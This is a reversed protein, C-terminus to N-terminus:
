REVEIPSNAVEVSIEATDDGLGNSATVRIDDSELVRALANLQALTVGNAFCDYPLVDYEGFSYAYQCPEGMAQELKAILEEHTM